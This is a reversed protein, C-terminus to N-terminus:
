AVVVSWLLEVMETNRAEQTGMALDSWTFPKCANTSALPM